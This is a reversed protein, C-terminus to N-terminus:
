FARNVAYGAIRHEAKYTNPGPIGDIPGTYGFSRGVTQVRTWYISGPIGDEQASTRPGGRSNLERATIRVRIKETNPGTVGDIPGTYGFDRQGVTQIRKYYIPGPIGDDETTTRPLSGGGGGPPAGGGAIRGGAYDMSWGLYRAGSASTYGSVSNIGIATGWSASLHNSAMFVATGGGNLDAGVHGATGIDWWHFAGTLATSPNTSVITSAKYALYATDRASSDPLQGFRFMLSGCWGAWSGGDRKPNAAAYARARDYIPSNAEATLTSTESEGPAANEFDGGCSALALGASLLAATWMIRKAHM